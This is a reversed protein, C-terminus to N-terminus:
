SCGPHPPPRFDRPFEDDVSAGAFGGAVPGAVVGDYFAQAFQVVVFGQQDLGAFRDAYEFSVRVSGTDQNGIGIEYSM